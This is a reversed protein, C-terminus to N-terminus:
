GHSTVRWRRWRWPTTTPSLRRMAPGPQPPDSGSAGLPNGCEELAAESQRMPKGNRMLSGFGYVDAKLVCCPRVCEARDVNGYARAM